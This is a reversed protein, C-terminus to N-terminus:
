EGNLVEICKGRHYISGDEHIIILKHRQLKDANFAILKVAEINREWILKIPTRKDNDEPTILRFKNAM